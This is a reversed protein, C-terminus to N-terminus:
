GGGEILTAIEHLRSFYVRAEEDLTLEDLAQKLLAASRKIELEQEESRPRPNGDTKLCDTLCKGLIVDLKLLTVGQIKLDRSVLPFPASQQEKWLRPLDKSM